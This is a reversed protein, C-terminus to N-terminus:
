PGPYLHTPPVPQECQQPSSWLLRILSGYNRANTYELTLDYKKGAELAITGTRVVSKGAAADIVIQGNIILKATGYPTGPTTFTYTDSFLPQIQGTWRISYKAAPMGDAPAKKDWKFDIAADVRKHASGTFDPGSFYEGSLGTGSGGPPLDDDKIAIRLPGEPTSYDAGPTVSVELIKEPEALKDDITEVVVPADPSITPPLPKYESGAQASGAVLIPVSAISSAGDRKVRLEATNGEAVNTASFSLVFGPQADAAPYLQTTPIVEAEGAEPRWTLSVVDAKSVSVEFKIPVRQGAKMAITGRRARAGKGMADIVPEGNVWLRQGENKLEFTIDGTVRSEIEGTWRVAFDGPKLGEPAATKWDFDLLPDTKTSAPGTFYKSGYYDARLGTGTGPPAPPLTKAEVTQPASLGAGNFAAVRFRAATDPAQKDVKFSTADAPVSVLHMWNEGDAKEILFGGENDSTDTWSLLLESTSEPKATAAAPATPKTKADGQYGSYLVVLSGGGRGPAKGKNLFRTEGNRTEMVPDFPQKRIVQEVLSLSVSSNNNVLWQKETRYNKNAYIFGGLVEVKSGNLATIATGDGETKLGLIWLTAGDALIMDYDPAYEGRPTTPVKNYGHEPNMQRAWINGGLLHWMSWSVDEVFLDGSGRAKTFIGNRPGILSSLVLTRNGAHQFTTESYMWDMREIVVM